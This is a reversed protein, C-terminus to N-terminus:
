LLREAPKRISYADYHRADHARSGLVSAGYPADQIPRSLLIAQNWAQKLAKGAHYGEV